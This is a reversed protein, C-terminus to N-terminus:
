DHILTLEDESKMEWRSGDKTLYGDAKVGGAQKEHQVKASRRMSWLITPVWTDVMEGGDGMQIDHDKINITVKITIEGNEAGIMQMEDLLANAEERFCEHLSTFEKSEINLM